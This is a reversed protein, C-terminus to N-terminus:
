LVGLGTRPAGPCPQWLDALLAKGSAPSQGYVLNRQFQVAGPVSASLSWRRSRLPPPGAGDVGFAAEFQGDSASIDRLYRAALGAGLIGVGALKWDRRLLGLGAGLAGIMGLIPALAGALLKPLWLLAALSRDEPKVFPVLSLLASLYVQTKLFTNM